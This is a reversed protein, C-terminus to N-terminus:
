SPIRIYDTISFKNIHSYFVENKKAGTTKAYDNCWNNPM